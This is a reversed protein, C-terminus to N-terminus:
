ARQAAKWAEYRPDGAFKAIGYKKEFLAVQAWTLEGDDNDSTRLTRSGLHRVRSGPVVMPTVGVALAQAIVSDDACWFRFEEDFGGIKEWLERSIMFCWGAFHRGNVTGEQPSLIGRQGRNRPDLPSVLPHGAALLPALWNNEFEIDNNAVMIWPAKGDAAAMNAFTNYAFPGGEHVTTAGRYTVGEVQEVVTVGVVRNGAGGICTDVARQTMRRFTQNRAASLIVVDVEAPVTKRRSRFPPPPATASTGSDFDYHYLIREIAHETRLRPLLRRAYDADEGHVLPPFPTALAHERRVAMLHNPLREYGVGTNRDEVYTRSYRCLKPKARDLSVSVLFTVVDPAHDDIAELLAALYDPELRDDDDVFAVYDGQALGVMANRKDGLVMTKTDTLMLIEIRERDAEPLAEYQSYLQSQIAPAFTTARTHLSPVLISLAIM